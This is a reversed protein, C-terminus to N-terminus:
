VGPGHATLIIWLHNPPMAPVEPSPLTVRRVGGEMVSHWDVLEAAM